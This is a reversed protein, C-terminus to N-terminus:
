VWRRVAKLYSQYTNGFAALLNREEYPIVLTHIVAFFLLPAIFASLSGLNVAWGTAMILDAVYIPNRSYSFPGTTVLASPLQGPVATTRHQRLTLLGWVVLLLGLGILAWGVNNWPAPLLQAIPFSRNFISALFLSAVLTLLPVPALWTSTM